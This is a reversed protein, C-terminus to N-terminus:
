RKYILHLQNMLLEASFQDLHESYIPNQIFATLDFESMELIAQSFAEADRTDVYKGLPGCVEAVSTGKHALVPIGSTLAELAPLGFGEYLSPYLLGKSSQLMGILHEIPLHGVPIVWKELKKAKAMELILNRKKGEGTFVIPIRLEPSIRQFAELIAEQNKRPHFSAVAIWYESPLNYRSKINDLEESSCKVAYRSDVGIYVVKVRNPDVSYFECVDAKTTKSIVLIEDANQCAFKVKQDYIKRDIYPYDQPRVRFIVDHITVITKGSFNKLRPIENSLGHFVDQGKLRESMGFIRTLGLPDNYKHIFINSKVLENPTTSHTKPSFLSLQDNPYQLAYHHILWRAYNGLGTPNSFVRKADFALKM